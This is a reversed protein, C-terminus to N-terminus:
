ADIMSALPPRSTPSRAEMLSKRHANKGELFIFFGGINEKESLYNQPLITNTSPFYKNWVIRHTLYDTLFDDIPDPRRHGGQRRAVDTHRLNRTFGEGHHAHTRLPLVVKRHCTSPSFSRSPTGRSARSKKLKSSSRSM